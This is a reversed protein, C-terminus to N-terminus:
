EDRARKERALDFISPESGYGGTLDSRKQSFGAWPELVFVPGVRGTVQSDGRSRDLLSHQTGERPIM